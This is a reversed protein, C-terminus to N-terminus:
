FTSREKLPESLGISYDVLLTYIYVYVANNEKKKVNNGSELDENYIAHLLKKVKYM